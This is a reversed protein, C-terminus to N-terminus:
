FFIMGDIKSWCRWCWWRWLSRTSSRWIEERRRPRPHYSRIAEVPMIYWIQNYSSIIFYHYCHSHNLFIVVNHLRLGPAPTIISKIAALSIITIDVMIYWISSIHYHHFLSTSSWHDTIMSWSSIIISYHYHYLHFLSTSSWSSFIVINLLRLGPAPFRRVGSSERRESANKKM